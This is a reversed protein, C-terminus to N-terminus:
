FRDQALIVRSFISILIHTHHVFGYHLTSDPPQNLARGDGCRPVSSSRSTIRMAAPIRSPKSIQWGYVYMHPYGTSLNPNCPNDQMFFFPVNQRCIMKFSKIRRANDKAPKGDIRSGGPNIRLSPLCGSPMVNVGHIFPLLRTHSAVQTSM